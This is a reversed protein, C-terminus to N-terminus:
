YWIDSDLIGLVHALIRWMYWYSCGICPFSIFAAISHVDWSNSCGSMSRNVLVHCMRMIVYLTILMILYLGFAPRDDQMVVYFYRCIPVHSICSSLGSSSECSNCLGCFDFSINPSWIWMDHIIITITCISRGIISVTYSGLLSSYKGRIDSIVQLHLASLYSHVIVSVFRTKWQSHLLFSRNRDSCQVHCLVLDM